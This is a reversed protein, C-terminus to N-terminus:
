AKWAFDSWMRLIAFYNLGANTAIAREDFVAFEVGINFVHVINKGNAHVTGDFLKGLFKRRATGPTARGCCRQFLQAFVGFLAARDIDHVAAIAGINLKGLDVGGQGLACFGCIDGHIHSHSQDSFFGGFVALALLSWCLFLGGGILVFLLPLGWLFSALDSVISEIENM